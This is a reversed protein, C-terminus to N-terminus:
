ARPRAGDLAERRPHKAPRHKKERHKKEGHPSRFDDRDLACTRYETFHLRLWARRGRESWSAFRRATRSDAVARPDDGLLWADVLARYGNPSACAPGDKLGESIQRVARAAYGPSLSEDVHVAAVGGGGHRAGLRSAAGGPHVRRADRGAARRPPHGAGDAATARSAARPARLRDAAVAPCAPEAAAPAVAGSSGRLDLTAAATAALAVALPPRDPVPADGVDRLRPDARHDDRRGLPGPRRFCGGCPPSCTSAPSRPRPLLSWWSVGPVRLAAWLSTVALVLAATVRHPVVRGTLYGVVVHLVLAGAGAVAGLPHPHGAEEHVLTVAVVLATVALYSVLAASSLLLLDFLVGTAPSRATLDRLYDLPRERVAAWAALGAAVPGLFRVANVLAVVTNDWYAVSPCLSLVTAATGVLTLVPVAVLLATRRADLRLVRGLDSM